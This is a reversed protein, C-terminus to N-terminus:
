PGGMFLIEFPVGRAHWVESAEVFTEVVPDPESGVVLVICYGPAPLWSLDTLCDYLADLNHGFYDPFALAEAVRALATARDVDRLDIRVAFDGRRRAEALAADVGASV